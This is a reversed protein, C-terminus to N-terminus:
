GAPGSGRTTQWILTSALGIWLHVLILGEGGEVALLAGQRVLGWTGAVITMGSAALGAYCFWRPYPRPVAFQLHIWSMTAMWVALMWLSAASAAQDLRWLALFREYSSGGAESSAGSLTAAASASEVLNLSLGLVILGFGALGAALSWRSLRPAYARVMRHFLWAALPILAAYLILPSWLQKSLPLQLFALSAETPSGVAPYEGLLRRAFLAAGAWVAVLAADLRSFRVDDDHTM